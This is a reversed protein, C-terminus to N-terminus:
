RNRNAAGPEPSRSQEEALEARLGDIVAHFEARNHASLSALAEHARLLRERTRSSALSARGLPKLSEPLPVSQDRIRELVREMALEEFLARLAPGVRQLRADGGVEHM